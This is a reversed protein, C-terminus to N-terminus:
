SEKRKLRFIRGSTKTVIPTSEIEEGHANALSWAALWHLDGTGGAQFPYTQFVDGSRVHIVVRGPMGGSVETTHILLNLATAPM